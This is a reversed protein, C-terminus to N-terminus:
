SIAARSSLRSSYKAPFARNRNSERPRTRGLSAIEDSGDSDNSHNGFFFSPNRRSEEMRTTERMAKTEEDNRKSEGSGRISHVWEM